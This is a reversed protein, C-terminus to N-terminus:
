FRFGVNVGVTTVELEAGAAPGDFDDFQHRLAEVGIVVRDTALIDVGLGYFYGSSDLSGAGASIDIDAYGATGYVLARGLDFGGEIGVRLLRDYDVATVAAGATIDGDGMMYDVEGGVVLQGFDFRYGGFIGYVQGEVTFSGAVGNDLFGDAITDYQLGVYAGSWDTVPAAAPAVVVPTPAPTDLGGALAPAAAISLAAALAMRSM